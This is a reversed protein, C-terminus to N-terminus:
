CHPGWVSDIKHFTDWSLGWDDSDYIRSLFDAQDNESRPIWEMEISISHNCCIYYISLAESQLHAKSSGCSIINPINQNDTFWKVTLGALQNLLSLLVFKVALLEKLTSSSSAHHKPWNGSVFESGCQVLYGGFGSDSADSYVIAVASSKPSMPRGNISDINDHWFSLETRISPSILVLQDWSERCEIAAYCSRTLLRSINGVACLMSIIQGTISALDRAMVSRHKLCASLSTKLKAIRREPIHITGDKFNLITGLFVVIQTPEWVSKEDNLTFGCHVLDQRIKLSLQKASPNSVHGGIGDDLYVLVRHGHGRWFKILQRMVKTFVYPASTLGFPLVKFEYSRLQGDESPWKFSLVQTHEDCIDIHHYASKLDFCFVFMGCPFMQLVCRLDEYKIANKVVFNNLHSLDLILRLKGSSQVAVHLPNYYKPYTTVQRICGRM